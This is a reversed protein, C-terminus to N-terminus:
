SPPDEFLSDDYYYIGVAVYRPRTGEAQGPDTEHESLWRNYEELLEQSKRTSLDRFAALADDRVAPNSVKRQFVRRERGAGLNHGISTILEAVDNGLIDIHELPTQAPLYARERLVVRGDERDVTGSAELITLMATPPIDGSYAKVLAAFGDEGELPLPAPEGDPSRFRADMLWGSIVRVARNYRQDREGSDVTVADRLRKTEKRTLGTLAAVSSVSARRRGAALERFGEDVYAKRALEAFSGYAIGHRLLVRVLPRLLRHTAQHVAATLANEM